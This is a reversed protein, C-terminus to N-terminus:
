TKLENPYITSNSFWTSLTYKTKYSIAWSNELAAVGNKIRRSQISTKRRGKTWVHTTDTNQISAVRLHTTTDWQKLGIEEHCTIHVTKWLSLPWREARQHPTQEFEYENKSQSIQKWIISKESNKHIIKSVM